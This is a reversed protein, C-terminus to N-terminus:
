RKVWEEPVQLDPNGEYAVRIEPFAQNGALTLEALQDLRLLGEPPLESVPTKLLGWFDWPLVEIKNLALLDRALNGRIFDWGHWEFIGFKDPDAKGRRCMLWAQGALVFQGAPLDLTNFTIGLAERQLADLQADVMVWREEGANWYEGVWHDEFHDEIFYTGFGCRARAPIHQFRLVACLFTSFDRCNGVLRKEPARAADLSTSDLALMRALKAKVQRIQVENQREDTLTVGYRKAWFIHIMLNQIAGCLAPLERPLAELWQAFEGPDTMPGPQSYYSLMEQSVSPM